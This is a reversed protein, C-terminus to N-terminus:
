SKFGLKRFKEDMMDGFGSEVTEETHPKTPPEFTLTELRDFFADFRKQLREQEIEEALNAGNIVEVNVQVEDGPRLGLEEVAQQPISLSGDKTLKSAFTVTTM